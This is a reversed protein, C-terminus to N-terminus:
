AAVEQVEGAARERTRGTAGSEQYPVRGTMASRM